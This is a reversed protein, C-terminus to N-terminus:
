CSRQRSTLGNELIERYCGVLLEATRGETYNELVHARGAEGLRRRMEGDGLLARVKGVFDDVDKLGFLLGTKGDEIVERCGRIASAAMPVGMAGAELLARPIGERHSPLVAVDMCLYLEPMDSRQELLVCRDAVGNEEMLRQPDVADSQDEAETIGVILFHVQPFERAIRGAMEFFEEYGKERVLRAVMGIVLQEEELGLERRKERRVQPYGDRDFRREDIGNGILHLREQKKFRRKRAYDFDEGSQFFLHDCWGACWREAGVAALRHLGKSNENFLFGHVTHAVVPVGALRAALPGLLTGKPNHSHAIEVRERRLTQRLSRLCRLDTWPAIERAFPIHLVRLGCEELREGYGVDGCVVSVEFGAEQLRLLRARLLLYAIRDTPVVHAVRVGEM